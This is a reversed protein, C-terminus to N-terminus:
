ANECQKELESSQLTGFLYKKLHIQILQVSLETLNM